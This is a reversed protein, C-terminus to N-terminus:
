SKIPPKTGAQQNVAVDVWKNEGAAVSLAEFTTGPGPGILLRVMEYDIFTNDFCGSSDRAYM